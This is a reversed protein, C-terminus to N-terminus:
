PRPERDAAAAVIRYGVGRVTQVRTSSGVAELKRRLYGVYVDVVKPNGGDRHPWVERLLRDRTLVHGPHETLAVLLEFERATLEAERDGCGVSQAVRDIRLTGVVTVHHDPPETVGGGAEACCRGSGRASSTSPWRSPSTTTRAPKSAASSM